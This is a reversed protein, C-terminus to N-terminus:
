TSADVWAVRVFVVGNKDAGETEGAVAHDRGRLLDGVPEDRPTPRRSSGYSCVILRGGPAVIEWLLHEVLGPQRTPPVYVFETRVYDFRFPPTWDVVNGVFVRDAWRPLRRCALTALAPSYDLGYPEVYHGAAAAWTAISEMLLGNACGVDLLTGDRDIAAVIPRRGREWRVADARMGSQAYPDDTALYADTLLARAGDYRAREGLRGEALAADRDDPGRQGESRPAEDGRREEM